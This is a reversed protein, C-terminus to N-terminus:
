KGVTSIASFYTKLSKFLYKFALPNELGKIIGYFGEHAMVIFLAVESTNINAKIYGNKKARNLHREMEQIWLNLATQLRLKFGTDIPAM